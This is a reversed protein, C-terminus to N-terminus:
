YRMAGGHQMGGHLSSARRSMRWDGTGQGLYQGPARPPANNRDLCELPVVGKESRANLCLAWGDDFENVIRVTEGLTVSLEDPLNPIYTCRM